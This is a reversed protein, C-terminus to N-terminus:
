MEKLQWAHRQNRRLLYKTMINNNNSACLWCAMSLGNWVRLPLTVILSGLILCSYKSLPKKLLLSKLIMVGQHWLASSPRRPKNFWIGIWLWLNSDNPSLCKIAVWGKSTPSMCEIICHAKNSLLGLVIM